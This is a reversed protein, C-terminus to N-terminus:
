KALVIGHGKDLNQRLIDELLPRLFLRHFNVSFQTSIHLIQIERVEMQRQWRYKPRLGRSCKLIKIMGLSEIGVEVKINRSWSCFIRQLTREHPSDFVIGGVRGIIGLQFGHAEGHLPKCGSHSQAWQRCVNVHSPLPGVDQRRTRLESGFNVNLLKAVAAVVKRPYFAVCRQFVPTDSSDDVALVFQEFTCGCDIRQRAFVTKM